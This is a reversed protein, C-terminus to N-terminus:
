SKGKGIPLQLPDCIEPAYRPYQFDSSDYPDTNIGTKSSRRNTLSSYPGASWICVKANSRGMQGSACILGDPHIALCSVEGDHGVFFRQTMRNEDFIVCVGAVAWVLESTKLRYM